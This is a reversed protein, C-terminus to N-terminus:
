TDISLSTKAVFAFVGLRVFDMLPDKYQKIFDDRYLHTTDLFDGVPGM